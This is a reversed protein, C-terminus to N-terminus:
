FILKFIVWILILLIISVPKSLQFSKTKMLRSIEDSLYVLGSKDLAHNYQEKSIKGEDLMEKLSLKLERLYIANAIYYEGKLSDKDEIYKLEVACVIATFTDTIREALTPNNLLNNKYLVVIRHFAAEMGVTLLREMEPKNFEFNTHLASDIYHESSNYLFKLIKQRDKKKCNHKKLVHAAKVLYKYALSKGYIYLFKDKLYDNNSDENTTYFSNHNIEEIAKQYETDFNTNNKIVNNCVGICGNCIYIDDDQIFKEVESKSRGCFSCHIENKDINRKLTASQYNYCCNEEELIENCLTLCENCIQAGNKNIIFDTKSEPKGCFSCMKYKESFKEKLNKVDKIISELFEIKLDVYNSEVLMDSIYGLDAIQRSTKAIYLKLEECCNNFDKLATDLNGLRYEAISKLMWFDVLQPEKTEAFEKCLKIAQEYEKNYLSIKIINVFACINCENLKYSQKFDELAYEVPKNLYFKADGRNNYNFSFDPDTDIAKDYFEIAKNYRKLSSYTNGICYYIKEYSPDLEAVKMYDQLADNYKDLDFLIEGRWFYISIDYNHSSTTLFQNCKQMFDIYFDESIEYEKSYLYMCKIQLLKYYENNNELDAAQIFCEHANVYDGANLLELGKTYFENYDESDDPKIDLNGTKPDASYKKNDSRLEYTGNTLLRISDYKPEIIIKGNKNARGYKPNGNEDKKVLNINEDGDKCFSIQMYEVPLIINFEEDALGYNLYKDVIICIGTEENRKTIKYNTNKEM